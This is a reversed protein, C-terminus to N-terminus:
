LNEVKKQFINKIILSFDIPLFIVVVFGCFLLLSQQENYAMVKKNIIYYIVNAILALGVASVKAVNTLVKAKM